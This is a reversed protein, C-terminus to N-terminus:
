IKMLYMNWLTNLGILLGIIALLLEVIYFGLVIKTEKHGKIVFAYHIPTYSFIRKHFLRVSLQQLVVCLMEVVFVGGIVFLAISLDEVIAISAFLAGLALSGSDGMFIKAPHRNFYLYGLLGGLICFVLIAIDIENRNLLLVVFPILGIFSVGACLGDMGDTFNVANAEAMYLLSMFLVFVIPNIQIGITTFPITIQNPIIDKFIFYLVVSIVFEMVLRSIPSLGDNKGRKIVLMDDAFGVGCYLVFSLIVFLVKQNNISKFNIAIYVILPIVVFLLGGMIPTKEKNKYENLAYESTVQNINKKKLTSIFFPMIIMLLICSLAFGIICIVNFNM